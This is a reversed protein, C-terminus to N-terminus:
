LNEKPDVHIKVMDDRYIDFAETYTEEKQWADPVVVIKDANESLYSGWWGLTSNSLVFHKCSCMLRMDECASNGMDVYRVDYDFHYNDKIWKLDRSNNSFIYFVPDGVHEAIYDMGDRYYQENCIKLFSWKPDSYDGRRIHVCVSNCGSLENIMAANEKSPENKVRFEEVIIPRIKEFFRGSQYLGALVKKSRFKKSHEYYTYGYRCLMYNGRATRYAFKQRTMFKYLVADAAYRIFDLAAYIMGKARSLEHVDKNLVLYKLSNEFLIIKKEVPIHYYANFFPNVIIDMDGSEEAIARAYAYEFMQNGLGGILNVRIM